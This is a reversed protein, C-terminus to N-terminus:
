DIAEKVFGQEDAPISKLLEENEATTTSIATDHFVKFKDVDDTL